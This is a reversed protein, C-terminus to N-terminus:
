NAKYYVCVGVHLIASQRLSDMNWGKYICERASTGVKARPVEPARNITSCNGIKWRWGFSPSDVQFQSEPALSRWVFCAQSDGPSHECHFCDRKRFIHTMWWYCAFWTWM